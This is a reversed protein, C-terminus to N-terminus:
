EYWTIFPKKKEKEIKEIQKTPKNIFGEGTSNFVVKAFKKIHSQISDVLSTNLHKISLTKKNNNNKNNNSNNNTNKHKKNLKRQSGKRHKQKNKSSNKKRKRSSIKMKKASSDVENDSTIVPKQKQQKQERGQQQHQQQPTKTSFNSSSSNGQHKNIRDFFNTQKQIESTLSPILSGSFLMEISTLGSLDLGPNLESSVSIIWTTFPTPQFDMSNRNHYTDAEIKAPFKKTSEVASVEDISYRFDKEWRQAVYNQKKNNIKDHMFSGSRIKVQVFGNDTRIGHLFVKIQDVRVREFGRFQKNNTSITLTALSNQRVEFIKSANCKRYMSEFHERSSTMDRKVRNGSGEPINSEGFVSRSKGTLDSASTIKNTELDIKEKELSPNGSNKVLVPDKTTRRVRRGDLTRIPKRSLKNRKSVNATHHHKHHSSSLGLGEDIWSGLLDETEVEGTDLAFFFLIFKTFISTKHNKSFLLCHQYFPQVM